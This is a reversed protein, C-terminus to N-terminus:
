TTGNYEEEDSSENNSSVALNDCQRSLGLQQKEQPIKKLSFRFRHYRREEKKGGKGVKEASNLQLLNIITENMSFHSKENAFASERSSTQPLGRLIEEHNLPYYNSYFPNCYICLSSTFTSM